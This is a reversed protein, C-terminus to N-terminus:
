IAYHGLDYVYISSLLFISVLGYGFLVGTIFRRTNTSQYQTKLQIFGDIILPIMLMLYGYWALRFVTYIVMGGIIGALEGTCRACLPFKVGKYHFSRDERCHCGFIRPLWIYAKNCLFHM